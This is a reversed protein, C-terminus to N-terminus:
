ALCGCWFAKYLLFGSLILIIIGVGRISKENSYVKTSLKILQKPFGIYLLGKLLGAYGMLSIVIESTNGWKNHFTAIFAGFFLSLMGGLFVTGSNKLMGDIGKKVESPATVMAIGMTVFILAFFKILLLTEM